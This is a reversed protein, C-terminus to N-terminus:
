RRYGLKFHAERTQTDVNLFRELVQSLDHLSKKSLDGPKNQENEISEEDTIKM